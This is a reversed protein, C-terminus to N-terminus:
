PSLMPPTPPRTPSTQAAPSTSNDVTSCRHSISSNSCELQHPLKSTTITLTSHICYFKNIAKGQKNSSPTRSKNTVTWRTIELLFLVALTEELVWALVWLYVTEHTKNLLKHIRINITGLRIWIAPRANSSPCPAKTNYWTTSSVM